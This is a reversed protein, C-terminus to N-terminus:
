FFNLSAELDPVLFKTPHQRSTMIVDYLQCTNTMKLVKQMLFRRVLWKTHSYNLKRKYGEHEIWKSIEFQSESWLVILLIYFIYKNQLRWKRNMQQLCTEFQSESWLVILCIYFIYGLMFFSGNNCIAAM